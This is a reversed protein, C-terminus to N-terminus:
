PDAGGDAPAAPSQSRPMGVFTARQSAVGRRRLADAAGTDGGALRLDAELDYFSWPMRSHRQGWRAVALAAAPHNQAWDKGWWLIETSRYSTAPGLAVHARLSDPHPTGGAYRAGSSVLHFLAVLAASALVAGRLRSPQSRERAERPTLAVAAAVALLMLTGAHYFLGDLLGNLSAAVWFAAAAAVAAGGHTGARRWAARLAAGVIGLLVAGFGAAGVVGWEGLAQVVTNHAHTHKALAFAVGDPGLGLAPRAAWADLMFRWVEGRRTTFGEQPVIDELFRLLGMTRGDDPLLMSLAAGAAIGLGLWALTRVDPRAVVAWVTLAALTALISGRGGTWCLAAWGVTWLALPGTRRERAPWAVLGLMLAAMAYFGVTRVSGLLPPPTGDAALDQWGVSSCWTWVNWVVLALTGAALGSLMGDARRPDARLWGWVSTGFLVHVGWEATRLVAPAVHIAMVTGVVSAALWLVGAARLAWPMATWAARGGGGLVLAVGVEALMLSARVTGVDHGTVGGILLPLLPLASLAVGVGMAPPVPTRSVSLTSALNM